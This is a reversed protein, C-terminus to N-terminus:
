PARDEPGRLKGTEIWSLLPRLPLIWVIGAALFFLAELPWAMPPLADAVTAVLFGWVAILVVIALIGAPKRWSPRAPEIPM